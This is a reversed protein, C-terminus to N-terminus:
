FNLIKKLAKKHFLRLIYFTLLFNMEKVKQSKKALFGTKFKKLSLIICNENIEITLFNFISIM